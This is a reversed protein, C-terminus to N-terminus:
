TQPLSSKLEELQQKVKEADKQRWSTAVQSVKLRLAPDDGVSCKSKPDNWLLGDNIIQSPRGEYATMPETSAMRILQEVCATTGTPVGRMARSSRAGRKKAQSSKTPPQPAPATAAQLSAPPIPEFRAGASVSLAFLAFTFVLGFTAIRAKM